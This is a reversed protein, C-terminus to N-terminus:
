RSITGDPGIRVYWNIVRGEVEGIKKVARKDAYLEEPCQELCALLHEIYTLNGLGEWFHKNKKQIAECLLCYYVTLWMRSHEVFRRLEKKKRLRKDAERKERYTVPERVPIGFATALERAAEYNSTDRYMAVFKIVDGGAGCVFCYFGKGNPYIKLSPHRDRHFPCLCKGKVARLGCYEVAQQMSISEKVNRFLEPDCLRSAKM